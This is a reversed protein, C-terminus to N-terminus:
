STRWDEQLASTIQQVLRRRGSGSSYVGAVGEQGMKWYDPGTSVGGKLNDGSLRLLTKRLIGAYSDPHDIPNGVMAAHHLVFSLLDHFVYVGVTKQINYRKPSRFCEPLVKEIGRWYADVIGARTGTPHTNFNTQGLTPKLSSAFSNSTILTNGKPENPFRIKGVWVGRKAALDTLEQANVKWIEGSSVLYERLESHTQALKALLDFALDTKISKANSNVKHFQEMEATEDSGFLIVVPIKYESWYRDKDEEIVTRLSELRHQGDVVFFPQAENRPLTLVYRGGSELRPRLNPDRVSLLLATPLDVKRERMESALDRVRKPTPLRQYGRDGAYDRHPIQCRGVLEGAKIVGAFTQMDDGRLPNSIPQGKLLLVEYAAM